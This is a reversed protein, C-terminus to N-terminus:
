RFFRHLKCSSRSLLSPCSVQVGSDCVDVYVYLLHCFLTECWKLRAFWEVWLM